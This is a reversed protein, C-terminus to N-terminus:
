KVRYYMLLQYSKTFNWELPSGDYDKTGEFQWNINTNLYEKWKMPVLRHFSMGDYGMEHGQCTITACFHQKSIDRVVASDIEYKGENVKFSNPKKRFTEAEEEYFEFVIIHPLHAMKKITELVKDKWTANANQIFLMQISSNNLYNIISTYYYIPNGAKDVDVIYPNKTKYLTPINQYLLHIISNTDLKYAYNNGTLCADIGFNLLAFADRIIDPIATGNKQKGEIMLQRLFHFFKRGKDSVFFTVFLANFWCNSQAQIPPIIKKPDIHKDAALNRLLFKKAEPTYYYYCNKGYLKGPIGIQLPEKLNFAADMNCDLLEKRSISKLTVLDQNITPSYSGSDLKNAIRNSIKRLKLPTKTPLIIDRKNHRITKNYSPNKPKTRHNRNYKKTRSKNM